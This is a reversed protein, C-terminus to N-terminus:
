LSHVLGGGDIGELVITNARRSRDRRATGLLPTATELLTNRGNGDIATERKAPFCRFMELPISSCGVQIAGLHDLDTKKALVLAM